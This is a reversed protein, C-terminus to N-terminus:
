INFFYPVKYLIILDLQQFSENDKDNVYWALQIVVEM